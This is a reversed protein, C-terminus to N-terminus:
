VAATPTPASESRGPRPRCRAHLPRIDSASQGQPVGDDIHGFRRGGSREFVERVAHPLLKIGVGLPQISPVAEFVRCRMGAPHLSLALLLGGIGAGLVVLDSGTDM